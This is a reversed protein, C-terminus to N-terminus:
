RITRALMGAEAEVIAEAQPEAEAKAEAEAEVGAKAKATAEAKTKALARAETDLLIPSRSLEHKRQERKGTWSFKYVTANLAAGRGGVSRCLHFRFLPSM